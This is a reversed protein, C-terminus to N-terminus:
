PKLEPAKGEPKKKRLQYVLAWIALAAVFALTVYMNPTLDNISRTKNLQTHVFVFAAIAFAICWIAM